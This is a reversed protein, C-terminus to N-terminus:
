SNIFTSEFHMSFYISYLFFGRLSNQSLSFTKIFKGMNIPTTFLVGTSFTRLLQSDKLLFHKFCYLFLNVESMKNTSDVM